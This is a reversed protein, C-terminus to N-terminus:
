NKFQNGVRGILFAHGKYFIPFTYFLTLFAPFLDDM